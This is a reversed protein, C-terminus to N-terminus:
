VMATLEKSVSDTQSLAKSMPGIRIMMLTLFLTMSAQVCHVAHRKSSLVLEIFHLAMSIDLYLFVELKGFLQSPDM